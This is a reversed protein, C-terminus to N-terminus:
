TTYARAGMHTRRIAHPRHTHTQDSQAQGIMSYVRSTVRTYLLGSKYVYSGAECVRTM